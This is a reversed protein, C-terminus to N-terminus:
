IIPKQALWALNAKVTPWESAIISYVCTDRLTGNSMIRHNRLIGDLKAGLREIGRRSAQNLLHTRLEVAHCWFVEFAHTLLLTKAETNLGTRQMSKRYWTGGIELRRNHIDIDMYTTMGVAQHTQQDIVVFPLMSGNAQLALRRKIEDRVAEPKPVTTYWLKWLEGDQAAEVLQDHHDESLPALICHQGTLTLSETWSISEM